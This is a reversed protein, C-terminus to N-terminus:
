RTTTPSILLTLSLAGHFAGRGSSEAPQASTGALKYHREVSLVGQRQGIEVLIPGREMTGWGTPYTATFQVNWVAEPETLFARNPSPIGPTVKEDFVISSFLLDATELYRRGLQVLTHYQIGTLETNAM